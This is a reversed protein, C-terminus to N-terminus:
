RQLESETQYNYHKEFLNVLKKEDENLDDRNKLLIMYFDNLTYQSLFKNIEDSFQESERFLLIKFIKNLKIEFFTKVVNGDFHGNTDKQLLNLVDLIPMRDRYHRKSTIADFVDSVALIRGGLPIKGGSMGRYYGSGDYKEHHSSAIQPVNKLKEEFYLNSLIQDTIYVHKQIHKYEDETLKGEKYLVSDKIGIKGFDHLTAAYEYVEIEESPIGMQESIAVTYEKVRMSHGATIKDKADISAALTNIFSDFSKKQEQYMLNQKKFLRANELAIGASSGIVILLDEDEDTFVENGRKNLVEFVGSIEHNLNRLPMCLVTKTIYGTLKDTEKDFRPDNYADKINVM